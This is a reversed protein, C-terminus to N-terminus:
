LEQPHLPTSKFVPSLVLGTCCLMIYGVLSTVRHFGFARRTITRIKGNLAETRGNSLGTTVIAIIGELHKRITAAVRKFPPLRSRRAWSIWEELKRRVQHAESRGLIEAFVAKLLYARYLPRNSRQVKALREVDITSLNWYNKLLSYRTGKIAVREDGDLVRMQSRRVEDLADQVLRQVHFRDYVLRALPARHTVAQTYAASMDITIGRLKATRAPGLADFFGDLTAANKGPAAWVVRQKVHDVVVTVYEHHRRYSLEDIGIFTLDDLLDETRVRSVVREVVEGVTSWSMRLMKAVTSQDCRQALYAVQDEFDRTFRSGPEAWPVLEARIGCHRCNVRRLNYHLMVKM